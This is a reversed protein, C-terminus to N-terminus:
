RRKLRVCSVLGRGGRQVPKIATAYQFAELSSFGAFVGAAAEFCCITLFISKRTKGSILKM